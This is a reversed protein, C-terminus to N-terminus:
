FQLSLAKGIIIVRDADAFGEEAALANTDLIPLGDGDATVTAEIMPIVLVKTGPQFPVSETTSNAKRMVALVDQPSNGPRIEENQLRYTDYFSQHYKSM